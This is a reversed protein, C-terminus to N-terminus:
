RATRDEIMGVWSAQGAQSKILRITKVLGGPMTIEESAQSPQPSRFESFQAISMEAM